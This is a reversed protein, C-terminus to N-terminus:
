TFTRLPTNYIYLLNSAKYATVYFGTNWDYCIDEAEETFGLTEQAVRSGNITYVDVQNTPASFLHYIYAGDTELGQGTTHATIAKQLQITKVYELNTNYVIIKNWGECSYLVGNTRDYAIAFAAQATGSKNYVVHTSKITYDTLDIKAIGASAEMTAVYLVNETPNYSISNAHSLTTYSGRETLTETSLDYEYLKQATNDANATMIYLMGNAYCSGQSIRVTSDVELGSAVSSYTPAVPFGDANDIGISVQSQTTPTRFSKAILDYMGKEGNSTKMAPVLYAIWENEQTDLVAFLYFRLIGLLANNTSARREGFLWINQGSVPNYTGSVDNRKRVGNLWFETGFTEHTCKKNLKVSYSSSLDVGNYQGGTGCNPSTTQKYFQLRSTPVNASGTGNRLGWAASTSTSNLKIPMTVAIIKYRSTTYASSVGTDIMKTVKDSSSTSDACQLWDFRYYGSPMAPVPPLDSKTAMM